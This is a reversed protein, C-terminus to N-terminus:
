IKQIGGIVCFSIKSIESCTMKKLYGCMIFRLCAKDRKGKKKKKCIQITVKKKKNNNNLYQKLRYITDIIQLYVAIKRFGAFSFSTTKDFPNLLTNFLM